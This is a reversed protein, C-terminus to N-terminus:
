WRDKFVKGCDCCEFVSKESKSFMSAGFISGTLLYGTVGAGFDNRNDEIVAINTSRCKPCKVYRAM